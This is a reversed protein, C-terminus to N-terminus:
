EGAADRRETTRTNAMDGTKNRAFERGQGDRKSSDHLSAKGQLILGTRERSQTRRESIARGVPESLRTQYIQQERSNGNNQREHAFDGVNWAHKWALGTLSSVFQSMEAPLFKGYIQISKTFSEKPYERHGHHNLQSSLAGRIFDRAFCAPPDFLAGRDVWDPFSNLDELLQRKTATDRSILYRSLCTWLFGLRNRQVSNQLHSLQEFHVAPDESVIILLELCLEETQHDQLEKALRAAMIIPEKRESPVGPMQWCPNETAAPVYVPVGIGWAFTFGPASSHTKRIASEFGGFENSVLNAAEVLIWRAFTRSKMCGAHNSRLNHALYHADSTWQELMELKSSTRLNRYLVSVILDLLALTTAEDVDNMDNIWDDLLRRSYGPTDFIEEMVSAISFDFWPLLALFFDRFDWIRGQSLLTNYVEPIDPLERQALRPGVNWARAEGM